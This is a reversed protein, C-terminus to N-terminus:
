LVKFSLYGPYVWTGASQFVELTDDAFDADNEDYVNWRALGFKFGVFFWMM